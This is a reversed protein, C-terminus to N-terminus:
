DDVMGTWCGGGGGHSNGIGIFLLAPAGLM